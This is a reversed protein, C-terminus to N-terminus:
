ASRDGRELQRAMRSSPWPSRGDVAQPVGEQTSATDSREVAVRIGHEVLWARIAEENDLTDAFILVDSAVFAGAQPSGIILVGSRQGDVPASVNADGAHRNNPRSRM